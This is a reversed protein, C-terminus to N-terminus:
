VALGDALERPPAGTCLAKAYCVAPRDKSSPFGAHGVEPRPGARDGPIASNQGLAVRDTWLAATQALGPGDKNGQLVVPLSQNDDYIDAVNYQYGPYQVTNRAVRHGDGDYVYTVGQGQGSAQAETM